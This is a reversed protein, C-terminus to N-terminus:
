FAIIVCSLLKEFSQAHPYQLGSVEVLLLQLM